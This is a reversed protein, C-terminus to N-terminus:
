YCAYSYALPVLCGCVAVHRHCPERKSAPAVQVVVPKHQHYHLQMSIVVGVQLMYVLGEELSAGVALACVM